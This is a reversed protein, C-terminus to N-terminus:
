VHFRTLIESNTIHCANKKLETQLTEFPDTGSHALLLLVFALFTKTPCGLYKLYKRDASFRQTNCQKSYSLLFVEALM